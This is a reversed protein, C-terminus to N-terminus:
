VYKLSASPVPLLSKQSSRSLGEWAYAQCSAYATHRPLRGDVALKMQTKWLEANAHFYTPVWLVENHISDQEEKWREFQAKARLWHVRNIIGANLMLTKPILPFECDDMWKGDQKTSSGFSWIWTLQQNQQGVEAAGLIATKVGLDALQLPPLEPSGESPDLVKLYADRAM